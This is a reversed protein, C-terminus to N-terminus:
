SQPSLVSKVAPSISRARMILIARANPNRTKNKATGYELSVLVYLINNGIKNSAITTTINNM